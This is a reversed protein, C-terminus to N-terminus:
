KEIFIIDEPQQSLKLQQGDVKVVYDFGTVHGDPLIIIRDNQAALYNVFGDLEVGGDNIALYSLLRRFLKPLIVVRDTITELSELIFGTNTKDQSWLGRTEQRAQEVIATMVSRSDPFLKSYFTPYALGQSLLHCNASKQLSSKDLFVDSGDETETEGAFVLAVSRGYVDASRTLIFGPVEDPSSSTIKEHDGRTFKQFGLFKLLEDVAAHAYKLPQHQTGVSGVRPSFHTELADIADLRLQVGGAKNTRISQSIKKWLEPNNAYFRISDGDPATQAIRFRGQILTMPM